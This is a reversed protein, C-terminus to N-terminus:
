LKVLKRLFFEFGKEDPYRIDKPIQLPTSWYLDLGEDLNISINRTGSGKLVQLYAETSDTFNLSNYKFNGSDDVLVTKFVPDTNPKVMMLSLNINESVKGNPRLAKGKITLGDEIDYKLEPMTNGLMQNWNFRRWGSDDDTFRSVM